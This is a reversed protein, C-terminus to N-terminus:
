YEHIEHFLGIIDMAAIGGSSRRRTARRATVSNVEGAHAVDTHDRSTLETDKDSQATLERRPSFM